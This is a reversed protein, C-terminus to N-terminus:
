NSRGVHDISIRFRSCANLCHGGNASCPNEELTGSVFYRRGDMYNRYRPLDSVSLCQTTINEYDTRNMYIGAVEHGEQFYGEFRIRTGPPIQDLDDYNAVLNGDNKMTQGALDSPACSAVCLAAWISAIYRHRFLILV